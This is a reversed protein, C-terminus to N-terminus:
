SLWDCFVRAKEQWLLSWKRLVEWLDGWMLRYPIRVRNDTYGVTGWSPTSWHSAILLLSYKNLWWHTGPPTHHFPLTLHTPLEFLLHNLPNNGYCKQQSVWLCKPTKHELWCYSPFFSSHTPPLSAPLSLPFFSFPSSLSGYHM